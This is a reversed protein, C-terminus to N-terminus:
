YKYSTNTKELCFYQQNQICIDFFEEIHNWICREPMSYYMISGLYSISGYKKTNRRIITPKDCLMNTIEHRISLLFRQNKELEKLDKSQILVRTKGFFVGKIKVHGFVGFSLKKLTSINVESKDFINIRNNTSKYLFDCNQLFKVIKLLCRPIINKKTQLNNYIHICALFENNFFAMIKLFFSLVNRSIHIHISYITEKNLKM